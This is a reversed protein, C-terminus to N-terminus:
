TSKSKLSKIYGATAISNLKAQTASKQELNKILSLTDDISLINM